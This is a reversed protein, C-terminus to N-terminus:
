QELAKATYVITGAHGTGSLLASSFNVQGTDSVAFTVQADGTYERSREWKNGVSGDPNYILEITGSEAVTTTSTTRFVSYRIFAGRVESVPFELNPIDVNTNANSVMIYQQPPIDFPGAVNALSNEVVQAFQIIAEAWNPSTGSDPFQIISGGINIAPM